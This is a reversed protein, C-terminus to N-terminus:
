DASAARSSPGDLTCRTDLGTIELVRRVLPGASRIVPRQGDPLSEAMSLLLRAGACDVIGVGALDFILREPRKQMIEALHESFAAGTTIDLDGRLRILAAGDTIEVDITLWPTFSQSLV